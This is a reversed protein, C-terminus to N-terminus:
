GDLANSMSRPNAQVAASAPGFGRGSPRRRARTFISMRPDRPAPRAPPAAICGPAPWRISSAGTRKQMARSFRAGAHTKCCKLPMRIRSRSRSRFSDRPWSFLSAWAGSARVGPRARSNLDAAAQQELRPGARRRAFSARELASSQASPPADIVRREVRTSRERLARGPTYRELIVPTRETCGNGRRSGCGCSCRAPSGPGAPSAEIARCFRVFAAGGAPQPETDGRRRQARM